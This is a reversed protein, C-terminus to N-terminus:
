RPASISHYHGHRAARALQVRREAVAPLRTAGRHCRSPACCAGAPTRRSGARRDLDPVLASAPIAVAPRVSTVRCIPARLVSTASMSRGRVSTSSRTLGTINREAGVLCRRAHALRRPMSTLSSPHDRFRAIRGSASAARKESAAMRGTPAPLRRSRVSLLRTRAREWEFRTCVDRSRARM